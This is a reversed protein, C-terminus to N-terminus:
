ARGTEGTEKEASPRKLGPVIVPLPTQGRRYAEGHFSVLDREELAIGFM